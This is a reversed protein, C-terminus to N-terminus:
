ARVAYGVGGLGVLAVRGASTALKEHIQDLLDGRQVFHPDRRFPVNTSPLPPSEERELSIVTDATCPTSCPTLGNFKGPPLHIVASVSGHNQGIQFGHNSHGFGIHPGSYAMHCRCANCPPFLLLALHCPQWAACGVGRAGPEISQPLVGRPGIWVRAPFTAIPHFHYQLVTTERAKYYAECYDRVSHKSTFLM